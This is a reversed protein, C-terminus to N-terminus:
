KQNMCDYELMLYRMLGYGCLDFCFISGLEYPINTNLLSNIKEVNTKYDNIQHLVHYTTITEDESKNENKYPELLLQYIYEVQKLYINEKSKDLLPYMFFSSTSGLFSNVKKPYGVIYNNIDKDLIHEEIIHKIRHYNPNDNIYHISLVDVNRNIAKKTPYSVLNEIFNKNDCNYLCYMVSNKFFPLTQSNLYKATVEILQIIFQNFLEDHSDNNFFYTYQEQHYLFMLDDGWFLKNLYSNPNNKEEDNMYCKQEMVINNLEILASTSDKNIVKFMQCHKDEFFLMDKYQQIFDLMMNSQENDMSSLVDVLESFSDFNKKSLEPLKFYNALFDKVIVKYGLDRNNLINLFIVNALNFKNSFKYKNNIENSNSQSRSRKDTNILSPIFYRCRNLNNFPTKRHRALPDKMDLFDSLSNSIEDSKDFFDIVFTVNSKVKQHMEYQVSFLGERTLAKNMDCNLLLYAINSYHGSEKSYFPHKISETKNSNSLIKVAKNLNSRLIATSIIHFM